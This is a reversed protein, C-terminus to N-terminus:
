AQIEVTRPQQAEHPHQAGPYVKLKKLLKRGLPGKPLMGWVAKSVLEEPKKERIEAATRTKLGGPWGSHRYYKKQEEKRGTLRVQAANLVVVFDGTDVHPTFQPKNKGRLMRAITTAARGLTVGALDVVLWERKVEDPKASYTKSM